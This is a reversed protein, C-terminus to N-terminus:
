DKIDARIMMGIIQKNGQNISRRNEEKKGPLEQKKVREKKYRIEKKRVEGDRSSKELM